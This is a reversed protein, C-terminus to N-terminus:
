STLGALTMTSSITFSATCCSCSPLEYMVPGFLLNYYHWDILRLVSRSLQSEKTKSNVRYKWNIPIYPYPHIIHHFHIGVLCEISSGM